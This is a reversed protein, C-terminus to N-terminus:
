SAKMVFRLQCLIPQSSAAPQQSSAVAPRVDPHAGGGPFPNGPGSGPEGEGLAAVIDHTPEEPKGPIYTQRPIQSPATLVGAHIESRSTPAHEPRAVPKPEEVPTAPTVLLIPDAFKPLAAPYILPILILALLISANLGFTAIMWRRSRTYIKGMSEFTSDEFM